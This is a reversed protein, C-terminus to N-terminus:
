VQASCLENFRYIDEFSHKGAVSIIHCKIFYNQIRKGSNELKELKFIHIYTQEPVLSTTVCFIVSEQESSQLSYCVSLLM